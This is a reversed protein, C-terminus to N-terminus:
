LKNTIDIFHYQSLDFNVRIKGAAINKSREIWYEDNVDLFHEWGIHDLKNYKTALWNKNKLSIFKALNVDSFGYFNHCGLIVHGCIEKKNISDIYSMLFDKKFIIFQLGARAEVCDDLIRSPPVVWDHLPLSKYKEFNTEPFISCNGCNDYKKLISFCEQISGDPLVVDAETIAIYDYQSVIEPYTNCFLTFTNFEINGSCMLHMFIKYKDAIEKIKDSYKSPNELFIIDVPVNNALVSVITREIDRYNFYCNFVVLIREM